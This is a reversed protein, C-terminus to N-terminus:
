AEKFLWFSFILYYWDHSLASNAKQSVITFLLKMCSYHITFLLFDSEVTAGQVKEGLIKSEASFVALLSNQVTYDCAQHKQHQFQKAPYFEQRYFSM